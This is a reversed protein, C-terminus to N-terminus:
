QHTFLDSISKIRPSRGSSLTTALRKFPISLYRNTDGKDEKGTYRFGAMTPPMRTAEEGEMNITDRVLKSRDPSSGIAKLTVKRHFYIDKPKYIEYFEGDVMAYLLGPKLETQAGFYHKRGRSPYESPDRFHMAFPAKTQALRTVYYDKRNPMQNYAYELVHDLSFLELKGDGAYQPTWKTSDTENNTGITKVKSDSQKNTKNWVDIDRGWLRAVNQVDVEIPDSNLYSTTYNDNDNGLNQENDTPESRASPSKTWSLNRLWKRRNPGALRFKFIKRREHDRSNLLWEVKDEDTMDPDDAIHAPLMDISELTENLPPFKRLFVWKSAMLFYMFINGLRSKKRNREFSGGVFGQVGLSFYDIMLCSTSRAEQSGVHKSVPRVYGGEYTNIGVEYVDLKCTYGRLREYILSSLM